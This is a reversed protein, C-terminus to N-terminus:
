KSPISSQHMPEEVSYHHRIPTPSLLGGRKPNPPSKELPTWYPRLSPLAAPFCSMRSSPNNQFPVSCFSWVRRDFYYKHGYHFRNSLSLSWEIREGIRLVTDSSLRMTCTSVDVLPVQRISSLALSILPRRGTNRVRASICQESIM